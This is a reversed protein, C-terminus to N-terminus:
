GRPHYFLLRNTTDTRPDSTTKLQLQAREALEKTLHARVQTKGDVIKTALSVLLDPRGTKGEAPIYLSISNIPKLKGADVIDLVVTVRGTGHDNVFLEYKLGLEEKSQGIGFEIAWAAQVTLMLGLFSLLMTIQKRTPM